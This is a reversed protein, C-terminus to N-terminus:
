THRGGARTRDSHNGGNRHNEGQLRCSSVWATARIRNPVKSLATLRNPIRLMNQTDMIWIWDTPHPLTATRSHGGGGWVCASVCAIAAPRFSQHSGLETSTDREGM